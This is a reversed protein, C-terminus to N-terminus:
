HGRHGKDKNEATRVATIIISHAYEMALNGETAMCRGIFYRLIRLKKTLLPINGRISTVRFCASELSNKLFPWYIINHRHFIEGYGLLRSSRFFEIRGMYSQINPVSLILRGGPRIVRAAEAIFARSYDLYQLGECNIVVDFYHDRYPMRKNLDLQRFDIKSDGKFHDEVDCAHVEHGKFFLVQSILGRGCAADLVRYNGTGVSKIVESWCYFLPYRRGRRIFPVDVLRPVEDLIPEVPVDSPHAYKSNWPLEELQYRTLTNM